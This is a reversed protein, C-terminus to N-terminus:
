NSKNDAKQKDLLAQVKLAEDFHKMGSESFCFVLERPKKNKLQEAFMAEFEEKSPLPNQQM